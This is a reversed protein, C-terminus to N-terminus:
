VALHSRTRPQGCEGLATECAPDASSWRAFFRECAELSGAANGLDRDIARAGGLGASPHHESSVARVSSGLKEAMMPLRTRADGTKLGSDQAATTLSLQPPGNYGCGQNEVFLAIFQCTPPRRQCYPESRFRLNPRVADHRHDAPASIPSTYRARSARRPRSTAILVMARIRRM